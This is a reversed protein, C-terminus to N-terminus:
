PIKSIIMVRYFIIFNECLDLILMVPVICVVKTYIFHLTRITSQNLLFLSKWIETSKNKVCRIHYFFYSVM